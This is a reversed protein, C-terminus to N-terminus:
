MLCYNCGMYKKFEIFDNFGHYCLENSANDKRYKEIWESNGVPMFGFDCNQALKFDTVSDGIVLVDNNNVELSLKKFLYERIKADPKDFELCGSGIVEDFFYGLNLKEVEKILYDHKKHSVVSMGIDLEFLMKIVDKAGAFLKLMELDADNLFEDLYSFAIDSKEKFIKPYLQKAPFKMYRKADEESWEKHGMAKFVDSHVKKILLVTDVVTGDWDFIIYDPMKKPFIEM